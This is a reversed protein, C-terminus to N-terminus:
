PKSEAREAEGTMPVFLVPLVAEKELRGEKKEMVYLKQDSPKGVPIVIRGGERTQEVLPPPVKEPACTVIVADFPAYEPWGRFGDGVKVKVEKYGLNKLLAEAEKGLPEVIEITHVKMGMQALVAAQYGSGTGIELVRDGPKVGLKESMLAVMFPQSITQYHGIPLPRDDYAFRRVMVPVFLHRPVARMAAIVNEDAIGRMVVQEKVMEQREAYFDAEARQCGLLITLCVLCLPALRLPM